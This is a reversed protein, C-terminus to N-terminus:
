SKKRPAKGPKRPALAMVEAGEKRIEPNKSHMDKAARSLHQKTPTRPKAM